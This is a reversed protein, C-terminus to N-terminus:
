INSTPREISLKKREWSLLDGLKNSKIRLKVL